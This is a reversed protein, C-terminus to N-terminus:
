RGMRFSVGSLAGGKKKGKGDLSEMSLRKLDDISIGNAREWAACEEQFAKARAELERKQAELRNRSERHRRELDQQSDALKREKERVKREFVKYRLIILLIHRYEMYGKKM